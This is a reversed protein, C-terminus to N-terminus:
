TTVLDIIRTRPDIGRILDFMAADASGITYEASTDTDGLLDRAASIIAAARELTRLEAATLQV